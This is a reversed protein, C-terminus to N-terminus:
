IHLFNSVNLWHTSGTLDTPLDGVSLIFTFPLQQKMMYKTDASTFGITDFDIAHGHLQEITWQIVDHQEPRATIIVIAYGMDKAINLLDIMPQNPTDDTFLLTDDIDFMVADGKRVRRDSLYHVGWRKLEDM